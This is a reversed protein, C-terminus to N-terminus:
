RLVKKWAGEFGMPVFGVAENVDLMHRNEEANFTVVSPHGPRERQLHELNAVKLVMGLRHGRNARDVITDNQMAPRELDPPVSLETLGVLTGSPIHEVTTVLYERSSSARREEYATLREVTWVDEPEDLGASPEDTSMLTFLAVMDPLWHEPTRNIWQHVRYGDPAPAAPLDHAPLPLRSAREVQELTYGRALLFRVEPREVPVSGFGTPPHLREGSADPIASYVVIRDVDTALREAQDALARGIGRGRFEPLVETTLWAIDRSEFQHEIVARGVIRGDVRAVLLRKPEHPDLWFPLLDAPSVFMEDTGYAAAQVANRVDIAEAFAPWDADDVARPVPIEDIPITM